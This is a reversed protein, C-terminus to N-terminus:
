VQSQVPQQPNGPPLQSNGKEISQQANKAKEQDEQAKLSMEYEQFFKLMEQARTSKNTRLREDIEEIEKLAKIHALAAEQRDRVGRAVREDELGLNAIARTEREPKLSLDAVAKSQLSQTIAQEKAMEHQMQAQQMQQQQQQFKEVDKLFEAKGQLPALKTLEGPPIPEGLQQLEMVQRFFMYRQTNTLVGEQVQCDYKLFNKDKFEKTPEEGLIRGTKEPTWGQYIKMLKLSMTKQTERVRDFVEQLGTIAAAQRQMEVLASVQKSEVQGFTTPNLGLIEMLDKDAVDMEQFFNPPLPAPQLQQIQNLKYGENLVIRKGQGSQYLMQPNKVAGDEEVWGTNLHTERIDILQSRTKNLEKQPYILLNVLSQVKYTYESSEPEFIPCYLAFPYEDLGYPNIETRMYTNNLIIKKSVFQKQRTLMQLEQGKAKAIMWIARLDEEDEPADVQLGNTRNYVVDQTRHELTWLENYAMMRQGTPVRQFTMWTFKNDREWGDKGLSRVEDEQGPLLKVAQMPSLYRRKILWNCDSLDLKTFYPDMIFGSYPDRGWRVDGNVADSNYDLWVNILNWGTKCAGSFTESICTYGGNALDNILLKTFQDATQQSSNQVPVAVSSLRNQIQYGIIWDIKAKTRNIVLRERGQEKLYRIEEAEWQDGLYFRMNQEWIPYAQGWARYGEAWYTDYQALADKPSEFTLTSM